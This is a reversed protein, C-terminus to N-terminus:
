TTDEFKKHYYLITEIHMTDLSKESFNKSRAVQTEVQSRRQM